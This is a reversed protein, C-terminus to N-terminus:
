REDDREMNLIGTMSFWECNKFTAHERSELDLDTEEAWTGWRGQKGQKRKSTRLSGAFSKM